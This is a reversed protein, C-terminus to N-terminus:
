FNFNYSINVGRSAPVWRCVGGSCNYGARTRSYGAQIRHAGTNFTVAGNYYHLNTEGSNYMDSVTFMWHPLLSVELLGQLWNGEDDHTNLYQLELRTTLKKTMRAKTDLVIINSHIMGGHGEVITKNYYQNMYMANLTVAKSLRKSLQINIDQYYKTDGMKWFASGQGNSGIAATADDDRDLSRIHSANVKINTGYKGGLATGRRFNYGAEAQFAWEGDPHTAYPYLAALAYTHDMAFAPLHNIFSSTGTQSRRSRFSMYDSRKAQLLISMGSQSYTASLMAVSGRRYIYGNDASPDESKMAYEALIGLGNRQFNARVDFANVFEPMHLRHTADVMVVDENEYKNVWSAGITLVGGGEGLAPIWEELGLELDAGSVLGKNLHWYRRQRGSLLKFSVGKVPKLTLRGGLLMNDVGLSREEYTRFIFGSGFQDYFNGATLDWKDFHLKAYYYPIGWGKFDAEYGPLPFKLFSFRFGADVIKTMLNVDAYTNTQAWDDTKATGIKEDDQPILIDSMVSGTLIIPNEPMVSMAEDQAQAMASSCALATLAATRFLTNHTLNM